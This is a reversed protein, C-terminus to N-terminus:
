EKGAGWAEKLEEIKKSYSEKMENCIAEYMEKTLEEEKVETYGEEMAKAALAAILAANEKMYGQLTHDQYEDKEYICAAESVKAYGETFMEEVSVSVKEAEVEAAPEEESEDEDDSGDDDSEDEDDSGDEDEDDSEVEETEEDEIEEAPVESADECEKCNGEEDHGCPCEELEEESIKSKDGFGQSASYEEFSQIKKAM